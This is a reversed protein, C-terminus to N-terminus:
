AEGNSASVGVSSGVWVGVGAGVFVGVVGGVFVGTADGVGVCGTGGVLAGVVVAVGAGVREGPLPEASGAIVFDTLLCAVLTPSVNSNVSETVFRPLIGASFTITLSGNGPENSKMLAVDDRPVTFPPWVTVTSKPM